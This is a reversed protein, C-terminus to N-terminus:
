VAVSVAVAVPVLVAVAVGVAVSGDFGGDFGPLRAKHREHGRYARRSDLWVNCFNRQGAHAFRDGVLLRALGVEDLHLLRFGQDPLGLRRRGRRFRADGGVSQM